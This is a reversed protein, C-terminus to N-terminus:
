HSMVHADRVLKPYQKFFARSKEDRREESKKDRGALIKKRFVSAIGIPASKSTILDNLGEVMVILSSPTEPNAVLPKAAAYFRDAWYEHRSLRFLQAKAFAYYASCVIFLGVAAVAIWVLSMTIRRM